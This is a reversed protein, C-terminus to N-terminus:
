QRRAKRWAGPTTRERRKFAIHLRQLSGFGSAEAVDDLTCDTTELVHRARELRSEVFCDHLTRGLESRVRQELTRRAAPMARVLDEVGLESSTPAYRRIWGMALSVLPDAAIATRTSEREMVGLPPVTESGGRRDTSSDSRSWRDAGPERREPEEGEAAWAPRLVRDILRAAARGIGECDLRVSSLAPDALECLLDEDDVGLIAVQEPVSLGLRSCSSAAAVGAIDNASFLACPVALSGTWADLEPRDGAPSKWWDLTGSFRKISEMPVGAAEAFGRFRAESWAVGDVGCFAWNRFGLGRLYEGARRGAQFDDNRAELFGSGPFAGAVDVVPIEIGAAESARHSLERLALIETRSEVRAIIADPARGGTWADELPPFYRGRGYIRWDPATKGYRVVGRAVARGYSDDLAVLLEVRVMEAGPM